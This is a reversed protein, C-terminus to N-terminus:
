TSFCYGLFFMFSCLCIFTNYCSCSCCHAWCASVSSIAGMCTLSGGWCSVCLLCPSYHQQDCELSEVVHMNNLACMFDLGKLVDENGAIFEYPTERNVSRAIVVTDNVYSTYLVKVMEGKKVPVGKKLKHTICYQLGDPSTKYKLKVSQAHSLPMVMLFLATIILYPSFKYNM